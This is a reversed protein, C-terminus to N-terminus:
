HFEGQLLDRGWQVLNWWELSLEMNIRQNPSVEIKMRETQVFHYLLLFNLGFSLYDVKCGHM